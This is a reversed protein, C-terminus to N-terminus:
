IQDFNDFLNSRVRPVTTEDDGFVVRGKDVEELFRELTPYRWGSVPLKCPKKTVPHIVEYRPGGGGPWNINGDDRYPGMADVKTYRKLPSMETGDPITRYFELVKKSIQGWDDKLKSRLDNFLTRLQGVGEKEGRFIIGNERLSAVSKAYTLM